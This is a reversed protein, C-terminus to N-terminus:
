LPRTAFRLPGSPGDFTIVVGPHRVKADARIGGDLRMASESAAVQLVVDTHHKGGNALLDVERDLLKLTDSWPSSFPASKRNTTEPDTWM